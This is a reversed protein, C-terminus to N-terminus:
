ERAMTVIELRGGVVVRVWVTNPPPTYHTGISHDIVREYADLASWRRLPESEGFGTAPAVYTGEHAEITASFGFDDSAQHMGSVTPQLSAAGFYRTDVPDFRFDCHVYTNYTILFGGIDICDLALADLDGSVPYLDFGDGYMNRSNTEGGVSANYAPSRYGSEVIIAGARNRLEQISEIAHPQIVAYQGLDITAIEGLQFNPALALTPSLGDLDLLAIPARYNADGGLPPPYSYGVPLTTFSTLQMCVDYQTQPGPYCVVPEPEEVDGTSGTTEVGEIDGTTSGGDTSEDVIVGGPPGPSSGGTEAGVEEGELPEMEDDLALGTSEESSSQGKAYDLASGRNSIPDECGPLLALLLM